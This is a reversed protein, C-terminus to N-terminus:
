SGDWNKWSGDSAPHLPTPHIWNGQLTDYDLSLINPIFEDWSIVHFDKYHAFKFGGQCIPNILKDGEWISAICMHSGPNLSIMVKVFVQIQLIKSASECCSFTRFMNEWDQHHFRFISIFRMPKKSGYFLWRFCFCTGLIITPERRKKRESGYLDLQMKVLFIAVTKWCFGKLELKEPDALRAFLVAVAKACNKRRSFLHSKTRGLADLVVFLMPPLMGQIGVWQNPPPTSEESTTSM